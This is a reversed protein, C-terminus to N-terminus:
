SMWPIIVTRTFNALVLFFVGINTRNCWIDVRERNGTWLWHYSMAVVCYMTILLLVATLVNSAALM